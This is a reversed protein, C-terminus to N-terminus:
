SPAAHAQHFSPHEAEDLVDKCYMVFRDPNKPVRTLGETGLHMFSDCVVKGYRDHKVVECIKLLSMIMPGEARSAINLIDMCGAFEAVYQTKKDSVHSYRLTSPTSCIYRM